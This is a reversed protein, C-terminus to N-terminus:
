LQKLGGTIGYIEGTVYSAAESALFVYIPALEAPQAPRGFLTEEGFSKVDELKMTSPILPTWVPGPAVGNVRIGKDIAFAALSKTFNAIAAKTAAYPSLQRSPSYAQISTTNIISSGPAMRSLSARSLYFLAEINTGFTRQIDDNTIEEFKDYTKQYAANNVLIDLRGLKKVVTEIAKDCEESKSQDMQIAVSRQGAEEILQCTVKADEVSSHYAIAVDAGERSYAIAIARGIGSDGGTVFAVMGKLQEHGKYSEEGHHSKAKSNRLEEKSDPTDGEEFEVQPYKSRPDELISKLKPMSQIPQTSIPAAARLQSSQM